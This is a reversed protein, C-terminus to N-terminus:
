MNRYLNYYKETIYEMSYNKVNELGAKIIDARNNSDNIAKFYASRISKVDYPNCLIAGNGAVTRMPEIDSTIVLRGIAQGEIIPMGFGEYYSPFNIIDANIYEQMIEEDSLDSVISYNINYKKLLDIDSDDVRGVIRIKCKIDKLAMISRTLNKNPKTGIHLITPCETNFEKPSFTFRKDVPNPIVILAGAPLSIRSQVEQFTKSSICTIAKSFKLVVVQMVWYRLKRFGKLNLLRGLDHVTIVVKEGWLFPILYHETGTIHVIDYKNNKCHKLVYRINKCIGKFNYNSIPLYISDVDAYNKMEKEIPHFVKRISFGLDPHRYIYLIRM